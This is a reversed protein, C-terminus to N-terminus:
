FGLSCIEGLSRRQHHPRCLMYATLYFNLFEGIRRGGVGEGGFCLLEGGVGWFFWVGFCAPMSVERFVFKQNEPVSHVNEQCLYM